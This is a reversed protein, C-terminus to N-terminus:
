RGSKVSTFFTHKLERRVPFCTYVLVPVATQLSLARKLERRVPFCTYVQHLVPKGPRVQWTEIGESRSLVHLRRLTHVWSRQPRPKLERRVPFCTYVYIIICIINLIDGQLKLERRVPFCTYVCGLPSSSMDSRSLTEIGESRSLM